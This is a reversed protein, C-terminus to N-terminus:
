VAVGQVANMVFITARHEDAGPPTPCLQRIIALAPEVRDAPVGILLTTHRRRLFGGVSSFETVRFGADNLHQILWDRDAGRLVVLILKTIM